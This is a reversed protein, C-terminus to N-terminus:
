QGVGLAKALASYFALEGGFISASVAFPYSSVELPAEDWRRKYATAYKFPDTTPVWGRGQCVYCAGKDEGFMAPYRGTGNCDSCKERVGELLPVEGTGHCICWDGHSEHDSCSQCPLNDWPQESCPCKNEALCLALQLKAIQEQNTM